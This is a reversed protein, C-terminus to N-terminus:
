IFKKGRLMYTKIVREPLVSNVFESGCAIGLAADLSEPLKAIGELAEAEATNLNRNFPEALEMSKEIGELGAEILLSYAIYPNSMPDPSRLKIRYIGNEDKLIRMLQSHNEASWTVYKPAKFEGLRKYSEAEPNLFATLERIRAMIGAMFREAYRRESNGNKQVVMNIHFGNGDKDEMPKPMFTAYLGNRAAITKVVSKFTIVNDASTMADGSKFDIENQGPGGEHHSSEPMIGMEELTLCIERRVNEGKDEPAIDLYGANDFPIDTPSGDEDTRFLYFECEAGINCSFGKKRAKEVTQKLIHRGDMEFPTGDPYKINCFFRVVRGHSPRWPLVSLTQPEPFLLLDSREEDGFGRIASADFSIGTKFARRLESPMISINKQVGFIDCFALRIFKIDNDKVFNLVEIDNYFM